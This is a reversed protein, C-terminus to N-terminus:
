PLRGFRGGKKCKGLKNQILALKVGGFIAGVIIIIIVMEAYM